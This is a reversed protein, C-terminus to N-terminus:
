GDEKRAAFYDRVGSIVVGAASVAALISWFSYFRPQLTTSGRSWQVLAPLLLCLIAGYNLALLTHNIRESAPLARSIDEEVFDALTIVVETLLIGILLLAWAGHPEFWGIMVFVAAYFLNRVAHLALEHQQSTRWALRETLEHHYITDFAGMVIQILILTWLAQSIM